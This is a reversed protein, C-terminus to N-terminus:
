CFPNSHAWQQDRALFGEPLPRSSKSIFSINNRHMCPLYGYGLEAVSWQGLPITCSAAVAQCAAACSWLTSNRCPNMREMGVECATSVLHLGHRLVIPLKRAPAGCVAPFAFTLIRRAVTVQGRAVRAAASALSYSTYNLLAHAPLRTLWFALERMARSSPTARQLM